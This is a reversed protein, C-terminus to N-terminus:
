RLRRVKLAVPGTVIPLHHSSCGLAALIAADDKEWAARRDDVAAEVKPGAKVDLWLAAIPLPHFLV